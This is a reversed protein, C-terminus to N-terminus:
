VSQLQKLRASIVLRAAEVVDSLYMRIFVEFNHLM